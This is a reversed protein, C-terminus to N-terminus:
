PHFSWGKLKGGAHENGACFGDLANLRGEWVEKFSEWSQPMGKEGARHEVHLHVPSKYLLPTIKKRNQERNKESYDRVNLISKNEKIIKKKKIEASCCASTKPSSDIIVGLDQEQSHITLESGMMKSRLNPITEGM